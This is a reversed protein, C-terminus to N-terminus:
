RQPLAAALVRLANEGLVRRVSAEALGEDLMAQTLVALQGAYTPVMSGAQDARKVLRLSYVAILTVGFPRPCAVTTEVATSSPLIPNADRACVTFSLFIWRVPRAVTVTILSSVRRYTVTSPGADM